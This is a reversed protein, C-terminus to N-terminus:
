QANYFVELERIFIERHPEDMVLLHGIAMNMCACACATIIDQHDLKGAYQDVLLMLETELGNMVDATLDSYNKCNNLAAQLITSSRPSPQHKFTM